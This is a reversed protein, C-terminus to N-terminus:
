YGNPDFNEVYERAAIVANGYRVGDAVEIWQYDIANGDVDGAERTEIAVMVDYVEVPSDDLWDHDRPYVPAASVDIWTEDSQFRRTFVDAPADPNLTEPAFPGQAEIFLTGIEIYEM